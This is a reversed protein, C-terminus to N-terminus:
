QKCLRPLHCIFMQITKFSFPLCICCYFFMAGLKSNPTDRTFYISFLYSIPPQCLLLFLRVCGVVAEGFIQAVGDGDQVIVSPHLECIYWKIYIINIHTAWRNFEPFLPQCPLWCFPQRSKFFHGYQWLINWGDGVFQQSGEFEVWHWVKFHFCAKFNM